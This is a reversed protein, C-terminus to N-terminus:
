IPLPSSHYIPPFFIVYKQRRTGYYIHYKFYIVYVAQPTIKYM